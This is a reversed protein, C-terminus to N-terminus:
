RYTLLFPLGVWMILLQGDPSRTGNEYAQQVDRPMYLSQANSSYFVGTLLVFLLLSRIM